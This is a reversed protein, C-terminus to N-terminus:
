AALTLDIAVRQRLLWGFDYLDNVRTDAIAVRIAKQWRETRGLSKLDELMDLLEARGQETDRITYGNGENLFYSFIADVRAKRTETATPKVITDM